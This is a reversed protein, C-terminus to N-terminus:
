QSIQVETPQEPQQKPEKPHIGLVDEIQKMILQYEQEYVQGQGHENIRKRLQKLITHSRKLEM